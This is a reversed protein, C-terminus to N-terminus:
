LLEKLKELLEAVQQELVVVRAELESNNNRPSSNSEEEEVFDTGGLLHMYRQEKQGAKRPLQVVFPAEEKSLKELIDNIEELSEYDYMRASNTNLEGPTQPGRLLLLCILSVEAPVIPFVVAFTHRYKIVRGSGGTVTAVLGKKKLSNLATTVTDEDYEVVPKRSTKQNCAALLSNVTLPYYDPTTRSKEMLSGLIRQEAADLLPLQPSDM